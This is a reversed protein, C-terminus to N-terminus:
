LKMIKAIQNKVCLKLILIHIIYPANIVNVMKRLLKMIKVLLDLALQKIKMLAKMIVLAVCNKDQPSYM